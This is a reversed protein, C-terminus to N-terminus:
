GSAPGARQVYAEVARGEGMEKVVLEMLRYGAACDEGVFVGVGGGDAVFYCEVAEGAGGVVVDFGDIVAAIVATHLPQVRSTPHTHATPTLNKRTLPRIPLLIIHLRTRPLPIQNTLNTPLTLTPSHTLLPPHTYTYYKITNTYWETV